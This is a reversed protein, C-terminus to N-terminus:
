VDEFCFYVFLVNKGLCKCVIIMVEEFVEVCIIVNFKEVLCVIFDGKFSGLEFLNGSKFFLIFVCIMFFYMVDFDFNYVYQYDVIDKIELNYDCFIMNNEREIFDYNDKFWKSNWFYFWVKFIFM